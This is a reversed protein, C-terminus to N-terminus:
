QARTVWGNFPCCAAAGNLSVKILLHPFLSSFLSKAKKVAFNRLFLDKEM